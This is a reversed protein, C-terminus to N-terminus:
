GFQPCEGVEIAGLNVAASDPSSSQVIGRVPRNYRGANSQRHAEAVGVCRRQRQDNDSQQDDSEKQELPASVAKEVHIARSGPKHFGADIQWNKFSLSGSNASPTINKAAVIVMHRKLDADRSCDSSAEAAIVGPYKDNLRDGVVKFERDM